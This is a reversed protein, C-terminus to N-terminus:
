PVARFLWTYTWSVAVLVPNHSLRMLALVTGIAFGLVISIVTLQVTAFVGAVISEGTFNERVVDWQFRSNGAAAFIAWAVLMIVVAGIVWRGHHRTPRVRLRALDRGRPIADPKEQQTVGM